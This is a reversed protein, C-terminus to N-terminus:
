YICIQYICTPAISTSVSKIPEARHRTITKLFAFKSIIWDERETLQPAGDGSKKRDLRTFTDRLSRFWGKLTDTTRNMLQAQDEWIKDKKDKRRYDTMKMNWLVPNDRLFDLMQDEEELNLSCPTKKARKNKKEPRSSISVAESVASSPSSDRSREDHLPPSPSRSNVSGETPINSPTERIEGAPVAVDSPPDAPKSKKGKGKGRASSMKAPM